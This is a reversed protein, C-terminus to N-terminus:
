EAVKTRMTWRYILSRPSPGEDLWGAREFHEYGGYHPLKIKEAFPSVEQVRSAAPITAPGGRLVAQVSGIEATGTAMDSM